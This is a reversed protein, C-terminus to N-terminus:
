NVNGLTTVDFGRNVCLISTLTASTKQVDSFTYTKSGNGGNKRGNNLSFDDYKENSLKSHLILNNFNYAVTQSGATYSDFTWLTIDSIADAWAGLPLAAMACLALKLLNRKM